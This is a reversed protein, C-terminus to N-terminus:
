NLYCVMYLRNLTQIRKQLMCGNLLTIKNQAVYLISDVCLVM